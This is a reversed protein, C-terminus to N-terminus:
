ARRARLAALARTVDQRDSETLAARGFRTREYHETIRAFAEAGEPTAAEVRSAFQRATESAGPFLGRRALLRLARGYFAPMSAGAGSRGRAPGLRRGLWALLGLGAVGAGVLLTSRSWWQRPLSFGLRFDTAQRHVTQALQVQDRLSWNIVYRYWRMRAADLYLSV